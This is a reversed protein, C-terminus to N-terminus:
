HISNTLITWGTQSTTRYDYNSAGIVGGEADAQVFGRYDDDVSTNGVGGIAHVAAGPQGLDKRLLSINESTYRHADRYGSEPKRNTWYDMPMWVDYITNISGWPFGPWFNPNIVDTVVPPMVIAGLAETGSAGRLQRSLDVLRASRDNADPVSNRWEIDVAIGDFRDSGARFARIAQLHKLDRGVDAFKPLYWGVVAIGRAHAGLLWDSLLDPDVLDGPTRDDEKAAQLYLTKVGHAKMEDLSRPGIRPPDGSLERSWDYVDVWTGLGRYVGI